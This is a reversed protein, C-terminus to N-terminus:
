NSWRRKTYETAEQINLHRTGGGTRLYFQLTGKDTLYVPRPSKKIIIRCIEMDNIRHFVLHIFQCLDTGLNTSVTTIIAQEFGDSDKKHLINYDPELGLLKGDDDVGILLSGGNSNMFGSITKLIVFELAKNSRTERYDWRLSSKFELEPGEGQAILSNADKGLEENLSNIITLRSQLARSILAVLFGHISGVTIYYLTLRIHQGQLSEMLQEWIFGWSSQANSDVEYMHYIVMDNVPQLILVGILCGSAIYFLFHSIKNMM